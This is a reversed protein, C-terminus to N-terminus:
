SGAREATRMILGAFRGTVGDRRYSYLDDDERTCGSLWTPEVGERRLQEVVGSAVDIAPTGSWTVAASVPEAEAAASRLEAPVEYCRGCVSPGVVASIERAGVARMTEITRPVVGALMGPRGAHAAAIVGQARDHLLVPTCDAVLVFLAVDGLTTVVGDSASVEDELDDASTIVRVDNGHVQDMFVSRLDDVAAGAHAALDRMVERRNALVIEPDDAVHLGLNVGAYPRTSHGVRPDGVGRRTLALTVDGVRESWRLTPTVAPAAM